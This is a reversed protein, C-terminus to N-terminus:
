GSLRSIMARRRVERRQALNANSWVPTVVNGVSKPLTRYRGPLRRPKRRSSRRSTGTLLVAAITGLM